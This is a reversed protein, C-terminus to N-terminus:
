YEPQTLHIVEILEFERDTRGAYIARGNQKLRISWQGARKLILPDDTLPSPKHSEMLCTMEGFKDPTKRTGRTEGPATLRTM